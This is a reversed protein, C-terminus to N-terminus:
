EGTPKGAADFFLYNNHRCIIEGVYWSSAIRWRFCHSCSSIPFFFSNETHFQIVQIQLIRRKEVIPIRYLGVDTGVITGDVHDTSIFFLFSCNAYSAITTFVLYRCSHNRHLNQTSNKALFCREGLYVYFLSTPDIFNVTISRSSFKIDRIHYARIGCLRPEDRM